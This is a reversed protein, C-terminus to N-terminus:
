RVGCAPWLAGQHVWRARVSRFPRPGPGSIPGSAFGLCVFVFCVNVFSGPSRGKGWTDSRPSRWRAAAEAARLLPSQLAAVSNWASPQAKADKAQDGAAIIQYCYCPRACPSGIQLLHHNRLPALQPPPPPLQALQSHSCRCSCPCQITHHASLLTFAGRLFRLPKLLLLSVQLAALMSIVEPPNLMSQRFSQWGHRPAPVNEGRFVESHQLATAPQIYHTPLGRLLNTGKDPWAWIMRHWDMQIGDLQTSRRSSASTSSRRPRYLISISFSLAPPMTM